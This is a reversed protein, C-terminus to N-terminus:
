FYARVSKSIEEIGRRTFGKSQTIIWRKLNDPPSWKTAKGVGGFIGYKITYFWGGHMWIEDANVGYDDRISYYASKIYSNKLKSFGDEHPLSIVLHHLIIRVHFYM